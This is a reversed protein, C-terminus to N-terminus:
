RHRQHNGGFIKTIIKALFFSYLSYHIYFNRYGQLRFALLKITREILNFPKIQWNQVLSKINGIHPKSKGTEFLVVLDLTKGAQEFVPYWYPYHSSDDIEYKPFIVAVKTKQM